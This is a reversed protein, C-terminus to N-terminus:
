IRFYTENYRWCCYGLCNVISFLSQSIVNLSVARAEKVIDKFQAAPNLLLFQLKTQKKDQTRHIIIRGDEYSYTLAEM